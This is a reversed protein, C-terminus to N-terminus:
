QVHPLVCQGSPPRRFILLPTGNGVQGAHLDLLRGAVNRSGSAGCFLGTGNKRVSPTLLRSMYRFPAARMACADALAALSTGIGGMSRLWPSRTRALWLAGEAPRLVRIWSLSHVPSVAGGMPEWMRASLINAGDALSMDQPGQFFSRLLQVAVLSQRRAPHVLFQCGVAARIPQKGHMMPRPMVALFGVPKGEECAVWSPIDDDRWPHDCFMQRIYAALEATSEWSNKPFVAKFLGAIETADKAEFPRITAM